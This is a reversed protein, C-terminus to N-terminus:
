RAMRALAPTWAATRWTVYWPLTMIMTNDRNEEDCVRRCPHSRGAAGRRGQIRGGFGLFDTRVWGENGFTDDLSGDRNYRVLAFDDRSTGSQLIKGDPQLTIDSASDNWEDLDTRAWGANGFAPTWAAMWTTARWLWTLIMNMRLALRAGWWCSAMGSSRWPSAKM